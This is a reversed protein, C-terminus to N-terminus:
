DYSRQPQAIPPPNGADTEPRALTMDILLYDSRMVAEDPKGLVRTVRLM